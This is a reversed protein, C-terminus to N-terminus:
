PRMQTTEVIVLNLDFGTSKQVYNTLNAFIQLSVSGLVLQIKAFDTNPGLMAQSLMKSISADQVLVKAKYAMTDAFYVGGRTTPRSVPVDSYIIESSQVSFKTGQIVLEIIRTKDSIIKDLAAKDIAV